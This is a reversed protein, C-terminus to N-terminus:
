PGRRAARAAIAARYKDPDARFAVISGGASTEAQKLALGAEKLLRKASVLRGNRASIGILSETASNKRFDKAERLCSDLDKDPLIIAATREDYEFALDRLPFSEVISGAMDPIKGAANYVLM